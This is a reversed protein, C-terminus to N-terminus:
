AKLTLGSLMLEIKRPLIKEYTDFVLKLKPMYVRHSIPMEKLQGMWESKWRWLLGGPPGVVAGWNYCSLGQKCALEIVKWHLIDNPRAKWGESSSGAGLAHATKGRIVVFVAAIPQDRLYATFIKAKGAKGFVKLMEDYYTFPHIEFGHTSSSLQLMKYFSTLNEEGTGHTVEVGINIAKRINKRKNHAIRKWIQEVDNYLFSKYVYHSLFTYGLSRLAGKMESECVIYGQPVSDMVARKETALILQRFVRERDPGDAVVPGTGHFGPVRLPRGWFRGRQYYGQILGVPKEDKKLLLRIVKTAPRVLKSIEGFEFSQELNDSDHEELFSNWEEASPSYDIEYKSM